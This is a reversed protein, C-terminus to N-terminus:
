FEMSREKCYFRGATTECRQKGCGPCTPLQVASWIIKLADGYAVAAGTEVCVVLWPKGVECHAFCLAEQANDWPGEGLEDFSHTEYESEAILIQYM